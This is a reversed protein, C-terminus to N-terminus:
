HWPLQGHLLESCPFGDSSFSGTNFAEGQVDMTDFYYNTANQNLSEASQFGWHKNETEAEFMLSYASGHSRHLQRRLAKPSGRTTLPAVFHHGQRGFRIRNHPHTYTADAGNNTDLLVSGREVHDNLRHAAFLRTTGSPVSGPTNNLALGFHSVM